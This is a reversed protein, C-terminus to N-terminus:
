ELNQVVASHCELNQAVALGLGGEQTKMLSRGHLGWGRTKLRGAPGNAVECVMDCEAAALLQCYNPQM